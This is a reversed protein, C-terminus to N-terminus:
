WTTRGCHAVTVNGLGWVLIARRVVLSCKSHLEDERSFVGELRGPDGEFCFDVMGVDVLLTLDAQWDDTGLVPLWSCSSVLTLRYLTVSRSQCSGIKQLERLTM